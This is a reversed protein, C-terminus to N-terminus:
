TGCRMGDTKFIGMPYNDCSGGDIYLHGNYKVPTFLFPIALSMRIAMNLALTPHTEYSLYCIEKTNVCVTTIIIKKKIIDYFDKLTINPKFGKKSILRDILQEIKDCTDLGFLHINLISMNRLTMADFSRIFEFLETPNWGILYFVLIMAGVSTGAFTDINQLINLDFLAALAGVHGIGKVGGGNLVLKKYKTLNSNHSTYVIIDYIPDINLVNMENTVIDNLKNQINQTINNKSTM